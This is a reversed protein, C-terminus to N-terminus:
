TIHSQLLGHGVSGTYVSKLGRRALHIPTEAPPGVAPATERGYSAAPWEPRSATGSAQGHDPASRLAPRPQVRLDDEAETHVATARVTNMPTLSFGEVSARPFPKGTSEASGLTLWGACDVRGIPAARVAPGQSVGAARLYPTSESCAGLIALSARQHSAAAAPKARSFRPIPHLGM